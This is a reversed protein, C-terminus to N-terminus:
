INPWDAGKYGIIYDGLLKYDADLNENGIETAFKAIRNLAEILTNVSRTMEGIEDGSDVEEIKSANIEGLSLNRLKETTQSIPKSVRKSLFMILLLLIIVGLIGVITSFRLHMNAQQMIAQVPVVIGFSWPTESNGIFIPAFTVYVSDGIRSYESTFSFIEGNKIREEFKYKKNDEPNDESLQKNIFSEDPHAVWKGNNSALFAYSYKFPRISDIMEQFHTLPIDMGTMGVLENDKLIPVIITTELIADDTTPEQEPLAHSETYSYFYPDIVYDKKNVKVHYYIGSTDDGALDLFEKKSDIQGDPLRYFSERRRGYSLNYDDQIYDLEWQLFVAIYDPNAELVDHLIKSNKSDADESNKADYNFFVTALNKAIGLDVNLKAQVKSAYERAYSDAIHMADNLAMRKYRINIFGLATLFIAVTPLFVLIVM